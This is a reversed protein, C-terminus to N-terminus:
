QHISGDPMIAGSLNAGILKVLLRDGSRIRAGRLDAGRLDAGSLDAGILDAGQLNAEKMDALLLNARFLNADSLDAGRLVVKHMFADSLNAGNLKAYSLNRGSLDRGKLNARRFDQGSLDSQQPPQYTKNPTPTSKPTWKQQYPAYSNERSGSPAATKKPQYPYPSSPWETRSESSPSATKRPQYPANSGSKSKYKAKVSRLKDRAENIEQLKRRAKEQLRHKEQPIRDPHWIFALDRYAQNVEELSAGPELELVRYYRELERM